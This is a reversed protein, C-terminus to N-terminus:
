VVHMRVEVTYTFAQMYMYSSVHLEDGIVVGLNLPFCGMSAHEPLCLIYRYDMYVYLVYAHISHM